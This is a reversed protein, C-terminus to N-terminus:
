ACRIAEGSCPRCGVAPVTRSISARFPWVHCAKGAQSDLFPWATPRWVMLSHPGSKFEPKFHGARRWFSFVAAQAPKSGMPVDQGCVIASTM